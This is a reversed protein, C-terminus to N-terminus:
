EDMRYIRRYEQTSTGDAEELVLPPLWHLMSKGGKVAEVLVLKPAHEARHHVTRVRKPELRDDRMASMLELMRPAPFVVEFRGGNKLLRSAAQCVEEITCQGEHRAIRQAEQESLLVSGAKGYPPNCVALTYKERGLVKWAECFDTEMVQVRDQMDNIQVSRSAMEAMEPQIELAVCHASEQRSVMLIAIIGTGTGMDVMQERPRPSAFDALLVADTGFHFTGKKQLIALGQYQLDEVREDDRILHNPIGM